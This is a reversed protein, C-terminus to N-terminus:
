NDLLLVVASILSSLCLKRNCNIQAHTRSQQEFYNWGEVTSYQAHTCVNRLFTGCGEGFCRVRRQQDSASSPTGNLVSSHEYSIKMLQETRIDLRVQYFLYLCPFFSSNSTCVERRCQCDHNWHSRGYCQVRNRATVIVDHLIGLGTKGTRPAPFKNLGKRLDWMITVLLLLCLPIHRTINIAFCKYLPFWILRQNWSIFILVLNCAAKLSKSSSILFSRKQEVPIEEKKRALTAVFPCDECFSSFFDAELLHVLSGELDSNWSEVKQWHGSSWWVTCVSTCLVNEGDVCLKEVKIKIILM